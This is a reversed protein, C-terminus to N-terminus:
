LIEHNVFNVTIHFFHIFIIKNKLTKNRVGVHDQRKALSRKKKVAMVTRGETNEREANEGELAPEMEALSAAPNGLSGGAGPVM